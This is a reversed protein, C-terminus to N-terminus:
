VLTNNIILKTDTTELQSKEHKNAKYVFVCVVLVSNLRSLKFQKVKASGFGAGRTGPVGQLGSYSHPLKSM